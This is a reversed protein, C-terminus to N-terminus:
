AEAITTGGREVVGGAATSAWATSSGSDATNNNAPSASAEEGVIRVYKGVMNGANLPAKKVYYAGNAAQQGTKFNLYYTSRWGTFALRNTVRDLPWFNDI